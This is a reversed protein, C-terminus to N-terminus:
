FVFGYKLLRERLSYLDLGLAGSYSGNIHKFYLAGRGEGATAGCAKFAIPHHEFYWDIENDPVSFIIRTECVWAEFAASYWGEEQENYQWVSLCMGTAVLTEQSSIARLMAIAHERSTPKTFQQGDALGQIITDVSLLFIAEKSEEHAAILAPVDIGIHKYQAIQVARQSASGTADADEEDVSIPIVKFSIGADRLLTHRTSSQSACYLLSPKKM